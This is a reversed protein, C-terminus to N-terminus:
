SQDTNVRVTAADFYDDFLRVSFGDAVVVPTPLTSLPIADVRDLFSQQASQLEDCKAKADTEAMAEGVFAYGAENVVGMKNRGGNEVTPGMVRLLSSTLTGMQNNDGQVNIDWDTGGATTVTSWNANDLSQVTVDAGVKRLAEAIYENGSGLLNTGVIRIKVGKLVEGATKSDQKALLSSDTNVCATRASGVSLLTEGRGDSIIDRFAQPDVAQAVAARLDPREAFATGPRENFMLYTTTNVAKATTYGPTNDFRAVNQDAIIGINLSGALVQNAITAYDTIPLLTMTKAPTGALPKKFEPWAKYDDRLALDYQVAPQSKTLTYPGSFAGKVTGAALGKPDAIGAPCVIGAQPLTLGTLFDSWPASLAVTVTGATDDPTFTATASGLALTRGSSGTEKAAFRTLSSAVVTPTIESGDSCSLGDRITLTYHAADETTWKSAIGGALTNGEDRRVVTDFLLRAVTFDDGGKALAPDFTAPDTNLSMSVTDTSTAGADTGCAALSVVAAAIMGAAVWSRGLM